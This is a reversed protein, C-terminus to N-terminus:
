LRQALFLLRNFVEGSDFVGFEGAHWGPLGSRVGRRPAIVTVNVSGSSLVWSWGHHCPACVVHTMPAVNSSTKKAADLCRHYPSSTNHHLRATLWGEAHGDADRHMRWNEYEQITRWCELNRRIRFRSTGHQDSACTSAASKPRVFRSRSRTVAMSAVGGAM